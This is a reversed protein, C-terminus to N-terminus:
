HRFWEAPVPQFEGDSQKVQLQMPISGDTNAQGGSQLLQIPHSGKELSLSLTAIGYARRGVTKVPKDAVPFYLGGIWDMEFDYVRTEPVTLTGTYVWALDRGTAQALLERTLGLTSVHVEVIPQKEGEQLRVAARGAAGEYCRLLLGPQPVPATAAFPPQITFRALTERSQRQGDPAIGIVRLWCSDSVCIPGQAAQGARHPDSGDLTYRVAWGPEALKPTVDIPQSYVGGRHSLTPKWPAFDGVGNYFTAMVEPFCEATM